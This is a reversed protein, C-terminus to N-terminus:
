ARACSACSPKGSRPTAAVDARDVAELALGGAVDTENHCGICYRDVVQWQPPSSHGRLAVVGGIAVAAVAVAAILRRQM